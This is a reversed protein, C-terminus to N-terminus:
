HPSSLIAYRDGIEMVAPAAADFAPWPPLERGNPTGTKVFNVWYGAMREAIERDAAVFRRDPAADLTDFVYPLEAGHFAGWTASDPGPEAHDYLYLYLPTSSRASRWRGWEILVARAAKSAALRQSRNRSARLSGHEDANFGCLAAIDAINAGSGAAGEGPITVGDVIPPFNRDPAADGRSDPAYLRAAPVQRLADISSLGLAQLYRAGRIQAENLSRWRIDRGASGSETIAQRFLAAAGPSAELLDVAFAGASQGALTVRQADGGFAAINRQVWGLAAIIDMLGYNGSVRQASEASLQPHALFGLVGLRYNLTVVIIGREALKRGDYLPVSASGSKFSGGHIWVMVALRESGTRAPTWVNISLCDESLPGVPRYEPTWPGASRLRQMCSASFHDAARTGAWPAPSRPPRWRLPGVAPEAYPIGLFAEVGGENVGSLVGSEVQADAMPRSSPPAASAALALGCAVAMTAIVAVLSSM